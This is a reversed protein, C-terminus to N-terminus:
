DAKSGADNDMADALWDRPSQPQTATTNGDPTGNARTENIYQRAVKDLVGNIFSPSHESGYEKALEIAENIAVRYPSYGSMIEHHALRLIARDVPPQRYTPWNPALEAFVEDARSHAKWAAMALEFGAEAIEKPDFGDDLGERIMAADQEGRLDIQYLVQM